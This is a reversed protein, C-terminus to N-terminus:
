INEGGSDETLSCLLNLRHTAETGRPGNIIVLCFISVQIYYNLIATGPWFSTNCVFDRVLATRFRYGWLKYRFPDRSFSGFSLIEFTTNKSEGSFPPNGGQPSYRVTSELNERKPEKLLSGKLYLNHPYLIRVASTLSKTHLVLKQGPVAKHLKNNTELM